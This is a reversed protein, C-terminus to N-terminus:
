IETEGCDLRFFATELERSIDPSDLLSVYDTSTSGGSNDKVIVEESDDKRTHLQASSSDSQDLPNDSFVSESQDNMGVLVMASGTKIKGSQDDVLHIEESQSAAIDKM